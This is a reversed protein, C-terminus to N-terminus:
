TALMFSAQGDWTEAARQAEKLTAYCYRYDYSELSLGVFLGGTYLQRLAGVVVGTPLRRIFTYGWSELEAKTFVDVESM